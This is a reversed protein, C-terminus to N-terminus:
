AATQTQYKKKGRVKAQKNKKEKRQKRSTKPREYM